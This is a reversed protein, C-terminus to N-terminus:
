SENKTWQRAQMRYVDQTSKGENAISARLQEKLQKVYQDESGHKMELREIESQLREILTSM